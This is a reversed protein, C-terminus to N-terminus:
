GLGPLAAIIRDLKPVKKMGDTVVERGQYVVATAIGDAIPPSAVSVRPLTAFDSDALAARLEALEAPAMRGTKPPKKRDLATYSGDDNVVVSRHRGDIGGSLTGAVLRKPKGPVSTTPEPPSSPPLGTPPATTPAPATGPPTGTSPSTGASTGASPGTSGTVTGPDAITGKGCGTLLLGCLAAAAM